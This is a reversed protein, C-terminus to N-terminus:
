VVSKRAMTNLATPGLPSLGSKKLVLATELHSLHTGDSLIHPTLIDADRAKNRMETVLEDSPGHATCRPDNEYPIIVNRIFHEIKQAIAEARKTPATHDKIVM